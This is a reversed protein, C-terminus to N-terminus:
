IIGYDKAIRLIIRNIKAPSHKLFTDKKLLKGGYVKIGLKTINEIDPQVFFKGEALMLRKISKVKEIQTNLVVANLKSLQSFKLFTKVHDSATFNDTEGPQTLLNVILIKIAKSKKLSNRIDEIIVNPIISTFLSGPGFIILNATMIRNILERPVSIKSRESVVRLDSIRKKSLIGYKVINEEGIIEVGDDFRAVLEVKDFTSPIIEGSLNLIKSAKKVAKLINGETEMLALLFLNGLPHGQLGDGKSFRHQITRKFYNEINSLALLCNRLDGIAPIDYIKKLIGSSGGSDTVTVVATLRKITKGYENKLGTLVSSLGTGGGIAVVKM